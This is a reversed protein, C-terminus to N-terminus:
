PNISTTSVVKTFYLDPLCERNAQNFRTVGYSGEQSRPKKVSRSGLCLSHVVLEFVSLVFFSAFDGPTIERGRQM